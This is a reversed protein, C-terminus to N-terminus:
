KSLDAYKDSNKIWIKKNQKLDSIKELSVLWDTNDHHM